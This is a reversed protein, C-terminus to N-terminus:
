SPRTSACRPASPRRGAVARSRRIATARPPSTSRAVVRAALLDARARRAPRSGRDAARRARPDSAGGFLEGRAKASNRSRPRSSRRRRSRRRGLAEAAEPGQLAAPDLMLDSRPFDITLKVETRTFGGAGKWAMTFLLFALFASRCRSRPWGSCGSAGSPPTASPSAAARMSGDTWRRPPRVASSM